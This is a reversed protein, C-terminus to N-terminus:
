LSDRLESLFSRLSVLTEKTLNEKSHARSQDRLFTKAGELTYRKEKVLYIIKRLLDIDKISYLRNGKKNKKPKLQTFEGEWFRVQSTTVSLMDAVEGISFYNKVIEEENIQIQDNNNEDVIELENTPLISSKPTEIEPTVLIEKEENESAIESVTIQEEAIFIEPQPDVRKPEQKPPPPQSFLDFQGNSM